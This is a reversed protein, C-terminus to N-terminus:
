EKIAGLTVGAIFYRQLWPYILLIPITGFMISAAQVSQTAVRVAVGEMAMEPSMLNNIIQFIRFQITYLDPTHIFFRVDQFGNWRGVAYFLTLTALAPKSLPLYIQTLIRLHSAGDIEASERLSDPISQFFSKLIIMNFVSISGPLVLAWFNDLLGLNRINIYVPIIGPDFYMTIIIIIMFLKRGVFNPQSLPYAALITMLMAYITYTVTLTVTYLMAQRMAPDGFVMTYATFDLDVPWFFVSRNIIALEGSLSTAAVNLMPLLCLIVIFSTIFVVVIDIIRDSRSKVRRSVHGFTRKEEKIVADSM